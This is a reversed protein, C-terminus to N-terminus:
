QKGGKLSSILYLKMRHKSLTDIIEGINLEQISRESLLFELIQLSIDDLEKNAEDNQYKNEDHFLEAVKNKTETFGQLREKTIGLLFSTSKGNGINVDAQPFNIDNILGYDGNGIEPGYNIRGKCYNKYVSILDNIIANFGKDVFDRIDQIEIYQPNNGGILNKQIESKDLNPDNLFIYISRKNNNQARNIEALLGKSVKDDFNDILFLCIDSDDIENLFNGRAELSSPLEDEFVYTTFLETNDLATKLGRRLLDYNTRITKDVFDDISDLDQPALLRLHNGGCKSSIFVNIM